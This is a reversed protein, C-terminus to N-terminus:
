KFAEEVEQLATQTMVIYEAHIYDYVAAHSRTQFYVRPINRAARATLENAGEFLHGDVVVLVKKGSLNLAQLVELFAKTKGETALSDLVILQDNAFRTTLIGRLAALYVKRNIKKLPKRTTPGFVVGGGRWQPSRISGQRARGTGKQRWPKRGGGSVESRNKTQHTGQAQGFHYSRVVEYVAQSSIPAALLNDSIEIESVQAGMQNLVKVKAM